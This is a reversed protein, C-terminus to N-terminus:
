HSVDVSDLCGNRQQVPTHQVVRSESEVELPHVENPEGAVLTHEQGSGDSSLLRVLTAVQAHGM